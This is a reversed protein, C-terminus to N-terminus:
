ANELSYPNGLITRYWLNWEIELKCQPKTQDDGYPTIAVPIMNHIIPNQGNDQEPLTFFHPRLFYKEVDAKILARELSPDEGQLLWDMFVSARVEYIGLSRGSDNATLVEEPGWILNCEGPQINERDHRNLHVGLVDNNYGADRQIRLTHRQFQLHAKRQVPLQSYNDPYEFTM